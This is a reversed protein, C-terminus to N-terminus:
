GRLLALERLEDALEERAAPAAFFPTGSPAQVLHLRDLAPVLSRAIEESTDAHKASKCLALVPVLALCMLLLWGACIWLMLHTAILPTMRKTFTGM